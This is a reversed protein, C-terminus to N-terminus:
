RRVTVRVPSQLRVDRSSTRNEMVQEYWSEERGAGGHEMLLRALEVADGNDMRVCGHSAADGLSDVANTGHIYYDPAQFFIKVRGMPNDPDGPAAPSRNRAWASNPPVWRPNWILHRITFSGRPTPHQPKGIAVDYSKVVDGGQLVHLQRDSLDVVLEVPGAAVPALAMEPPTVASALAGQAQAGGAMLLGALLSGGIGRMISKM